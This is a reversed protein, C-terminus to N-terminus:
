TNKRIWRTADARSVKKLKGNVEIFRQDAMKIRYLNKINDLAKKSKLEQLRPYVVEKLIKVASTNFFNLLKKLEDLSGYVDEYTIIERLRRLLANHEVIADYIMKTTLEQKGKLGMLSRILLDTKRCKHIHNGIMYGEYAVRFRKYNRELRKVYAEDILLPIDNKAQRSDHSKEMPHLLFDILLANTIDKSDFEERKTQDWTKYEEFAAELDGASLGSDDLNENAYNELKDHVTDIPNANLLAPHNVLLVCISLALSIADRQGNLSVLNM